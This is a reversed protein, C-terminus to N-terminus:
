LRALARSITHWFGARMNSLRKAQQGNDGVWELAYTHPLMQTIPRYKGQYQLGKLGAQEAAYNVDDCIHGFHEDRDPDFRWGFRGPDLVVITGVYDVVAGAAMRGFRM